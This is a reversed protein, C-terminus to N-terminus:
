LGFLLGAKEEDGPVIVRHHFLHCEDVARDLNKKFLNLTTKQSASLTSQFNQVEIPTSAEIYNFFLFMFGSIVDSVQIPLSGNLKSNFFKFDISKLKEDRACMDKLIPEIKREQDLIHHSKPFTKIRYSYFISFNDILLNKHENRVLLFDLNDSYYNLCKLFLLDLRMLEAIKDDDHLKSINHQTLAHLDQLFALSNEQSINPFEHKNMLSLFGSKDLKILTYLYSKYALQNLYELKNNICLMLDEIIDLFAWYVTNIMNCHLFIDNNLLWEFILRIRDNNLAIKLADNPTYSSKIKALQSFKLENSTKQLRLKNILEQFNIDDKDERTAIGALIFIPSSTQKPDNDINYQDEKLVLSRINNSEDYYLIYKKNSHAQEM